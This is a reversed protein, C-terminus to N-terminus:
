GNEVRRPRGPRRQWGAAFRSLDRWRWVPGSALEAVPGPFEPRQRLVALRQRSVGFREAVEAAGVLEGFAPEALRRDQEESTM